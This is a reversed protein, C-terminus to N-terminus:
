FIEFQEPVPEVARIRAEAIECYEQEKEIGICRINLERAAILTSGSGSFPDLCIVDGPPALLKLIYKMLAVPKVTPHSNQKPNRNQENEMRLDNLRPTAFHKSDTKKLPMGELGLNRESSSAKACYFFRSAGGSDSNFHHPTDGFNGHYGGSSNRKSPKREGSKLIGTMQDLQEAAEESLILNAPWRGKHISEPCGNYGEGNGLHTFSSGKEKACTKIEESGVRSADINIGAVGWKEANQAFTGDLPKMALVIIEAAPKLATGYGQFIESLDCCAENSYCKRATDCGSVFGTCATGTGKGDPRIRDILERQYDKSKDISKSIDLSKPFGSGFVWYICTRIEWGAEELANMLHHHTRDGGFAALMSGPKCIRLAEKWYEPNFAPQDKFKDFERGMFSIGYPPDTVIFDICNDAMERMKELCDGHIIQQRNMM